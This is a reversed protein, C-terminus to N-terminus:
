IDRAFMRCMNCDKQIMPKPEVTTLIAEPSRTRRVGAFFPYVPIGSSSDISCVLSGAQLLGEQDPQKLSRLLRWMRDRGTDSAM